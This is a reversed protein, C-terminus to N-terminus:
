TEGSEESCETKERCDEKLPPPMPVSLGKKSFTVCVPEKGREVPEGGAPRGGGM